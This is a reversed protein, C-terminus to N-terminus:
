RIIQWHPLDIFSKWNGGWQLFGKAEGAVLMNQWTQFMNFSFERFGAHPVMQGKVMKELDEMKIGVPAVDLALGSQHYSLKNTGDKSSAGRNFIELQQEASRLGGRWQVSQDYTKCNYLARTACNILQQDVGEMRKLSTKGWSFVKSM